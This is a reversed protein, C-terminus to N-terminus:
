LGHAKFENPPREELSPGLALFSKPRIAEIRVEGYGFCGLIHLGLTKIMM